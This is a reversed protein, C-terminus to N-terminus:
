GVLNHVKIFKKMQKFDPVYAVRGDNKAVAIRNDEFVVNCVDNSYGQKDTQTFGKSKLYNIARENNEM